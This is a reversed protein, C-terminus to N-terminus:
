ENSTTDAGNDHLKPLFKPFNLIYYQMFKGLWFVLTLYIATLKM